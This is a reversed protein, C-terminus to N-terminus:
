FRLSDAARGAATCARRCPAEDCRHVGGAVLEHPPPPGDAEGERSSSCVGGPERYM